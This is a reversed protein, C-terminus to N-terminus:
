AIRNYLMLALVAVFIYILYRHVSGTQVAFKMRRSLDTIMKVIPAYVYKEFIPETSTTYEMSKPHYQSNGGIKLERSPRFLIRFVIQIPMSFGTATYQMRSNLAEFGCDWTGYKRELYKGGVLRLSILTLLLLAALAVLPRKQRAGVDYISIRRSEQYAFSQSDPAWAISGVGSPRSRTISEITVPKKQAALMGAAILLLLTVGLGL